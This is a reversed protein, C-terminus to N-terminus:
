NGTSDNFSVEADTGGDLDDDNFRLTLNVESATSTDLPTALSMDCDNAGTCKSSNGGEARDTAIAWSAVNNWNDLNGTEFDEYFLQATPNSIHDFELSGGDVRM